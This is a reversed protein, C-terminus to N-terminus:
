KIKLTLTSGLVQKAELRKVVRQAILKLEMILEQEEMLDSTFTDEAGISKLERFTQVPREDIGRVINYYFNGVKGFLNLLHDKSLKKLDAGKYIQLSNMKKATVKGIGYFKQIPLAEIFAEIRSPGIFTLGDPKNM